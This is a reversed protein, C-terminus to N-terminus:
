RGKRGYRPIFRPRATVDTGGSSELAREEERIRIRLLLVNLASFFIATFYAGCIVPVTFLEVAVVAYIPHRVFRYPGKAVPKLGPIVIIRTNWLPGLAAIAWVRVGQAVLLVLLWVPWFRNWGRSLCAYELCLSAYFLAHMGVLLPYHWQGSERGGRRLAWRRNRETLALEAVRALLLYGILVAFM